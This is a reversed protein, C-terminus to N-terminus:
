YEVEGEWNAIGGEPSAKGKYTGNGKLNKFKGTGSTWKWTGEYTAEWSGDGKTIMKHTGEYTGYGRDGNPYIKMTYGKHSGTGAVQDAQGYLYEEYREL